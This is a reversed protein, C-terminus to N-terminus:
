MVEWRGGRDPGIRRLLRKEKLKKLNEKIKRESIGVRASLKPATVSSNKAIESLIKRQNETVKETVEETVKEGVKETVGAGRYFVVMFGTKQKKFEVKVGSARCGDYIRKLGSGWREVDKSLYLTNAIIPNRLISMESGKIFEEPTHGEPFEGPNSIEVRDKFVAVYNSGQTTYDRHCFSNVLAERVARVPIEPIEVRRSGSLDARWNIHEKVYAESKELLELINGDYKNIDLFTLKDTGAFVAVQVSVGGCFLVEAAKLMRGDHMLGLKSLATPVDSFAFSIRNAENGKKIHRRLVGKNVDGIRKDSLQKEWQGANKRAMMRELERVSIQRDVDGV